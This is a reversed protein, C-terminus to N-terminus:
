VFPRQSGPCHRCSEMTGAPRVPDRSTFDIFEGTQVRSFMPSASPSGPGGYGSGSRSVAHSRVASPSGPSTTGWYHEPECSVATNEANSLFQGPASVLGQHQSLPNIARAPLRVVSVGDQCCGNLVPGAGNYPLLENRQEIVLRLTM